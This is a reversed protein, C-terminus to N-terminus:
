SRVELEVEAGAATVGSTASGAASAPAAAALTDCATSLREAVAHTKARASCTYAQGAISVPVDVAFAGSSDQALTTKKAVLRQSNLEFTAAWGFGAWKVSAGSGTSTLKGGTPLSVTADVGTITLAVPADASGVGGCGALAPVGVGLAAITLLRLSATPSSTKFRLSM